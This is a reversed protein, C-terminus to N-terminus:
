LIYSGTQRPSTSSHVPQQGYHPGFRPGLRLCMARRTEPLVGSSFPIHARLSWLPGEGERENTRWGGRDRSCLCLGKLTEKETACKKENEAECKCDELTGEEGDCKTSQAKHKQFYQKWAIKEDVCGESNRGWPALPRVVSVSVPLGLEGGLIWAAGSSSSTTDAVGKAEWPPGDELPQAGAAALEDAVVLVAVARAEVKAANRGASRISTKSFGMLSDDPVGGADDTVALLRNGLLRNRRGSNLVMRKQREACLRQGANAKATEKRVIM